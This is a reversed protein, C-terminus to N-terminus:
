GLIKAYRLGEALSERFAAERGPLSALGREGARWDGPPLNFLVNALRHQRLRQAIEDPSHEYPFQFEVAAFGAEAAAEFRDLFPVEVFMTSLNAAFRVM